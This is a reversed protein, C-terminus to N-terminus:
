DNQHHTPKWRWISVFHIGFHTHGDIQERYSWRSVPDNLGTTVRQGVGSLSFPLFQPLKVGRIGLDVNKKQLIVPEMWSRVNERHRVELASRISGYNWLDTHIKSNEPVKVPLQNKKASRRPPQSSSFPFILSSSTPHICPSTTHMTINHAHHHKTCCHASIIKKLMEANKFDPASNQDSKAGGHRHDLCIKDLRSEEPVTMWSFCCSKDKTNKLCRQL